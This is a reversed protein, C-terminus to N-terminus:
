KAFRYKYYDLKLTQESVYFYDNVRKNVKQIYEDTVTPLLLKNKGSGAFYMAQDTIWSGNPFIVTTEENSFLDKGAYYRPDYNLDFLNALTPLIDFTSGTKSIKTPTMKSNYIIFPLRDMNFDLYRDIGVSADALYSLPMNLPHHDGFLAIVTDDLIGKEKLSNILTFLANDLEVAKALYVKMKDPYDLNKVKAWNKAVVGGYFDYPFHTSSTIIFSFFKDQNIFLPAAEEMLNIDSPWGGIMKINLDDHSYFKTSGMKQHLATRNYFQDTWNHYSSSYYGSQNFLSFISTSYDNKVYANPVCVTPIPVISTLAIYESEGTTCSYKPTYFNDFYWGQNAMKYLTPTLSENILSMDFAEIMILILNNNKYLGTQNNKPTIAQNIYFQDLIKIEPNTEKAIKAKWATDDIKRNFNSVIPKNTKEDIIITEKTKIPNVMYIFDRWLFRTVGFQRLSLDILIPKRYLEKNTKIQNHSDFFKLELTLTSSCQLLILIMIIVLYGLKTKKRYILIQKKILFFLLLLFFPLLCLYYHWKIYKVFTGIYEFVRGAGDGTSNLSMYNGMFNYFGLQLTAYIGIMFILGLIIRKSIIPKLFSLLFAIFFSFTASFLIIRISELALLSKFAILKFTGEIFLISLFLFVFLKVFYLNQKTRLSSNKM